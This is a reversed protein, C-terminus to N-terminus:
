APFGDLRCSWIDVVSSKGDDDVFFKVYWCEGDYDAYYIDANTGPRKDLSITKHFGDPVLSEFVGEVTESAVYGHNLLWNVVKQTLLYDGKAVLHMAQDLNYTPRPKM